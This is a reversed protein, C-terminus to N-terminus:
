NCLGKPHCSSYISVLYHFQQIWSCRALLDASSSSAPSIESVQLPVLWSPFSSHNAIIMRFLMNWFWCMFFTFTILVSQTVVRVYSMSIQSFYSKFCDILIVSDTTEHFHRLRMYLAFIGPISFGVFMYWVVWFCWVYNGLFWCTGDTSMGVNGSAVAPICSLSSIGWVMYHYWILYQKKKRGYHLPFVEFTDILFYPCFKCVILLLDIVISFSWGMSAMASFQGLLASFYCWGDHRDQWERSRGSMVICASALM